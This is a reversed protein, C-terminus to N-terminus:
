HDKVFIEAAWMVAAERIKHKARTPHCHPIDCKTTLMPAEFESTHTVNQSTKSSKKKKKSIDNKPQKGLYRISLFCIKIQASLFFSCFIKPLIKPYSFLHKKKYRHSGCPLYRQINVAITVLCNRHSRPILVLIAPYKKKPSSKGSVLISFCIITSTKWM